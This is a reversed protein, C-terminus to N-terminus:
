TIWEPMSSFETWLQNMAYTNTRCVLHCASFDRLRRTAIALPRWALPCLAPEYFPQPISGLM